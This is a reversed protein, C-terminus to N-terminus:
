QIVDQPLQNEYGTNKDFICTIISNRDTIYKEHGTRGYRCKFKLRAELRPKLLSGRMDIRDQRYIQIHYPPVVGNLILRADQNNRSDVSSSVDDVVYSVGFAATNCLGINIQAYEIGSIEGTNADRAYEFAIKPISVTLKNAPTRKLRLEDFKLIGVWIAAFGLSIGAFALSAAAFLYPLPVEARDFYHSILTMAVVLVALGASLIYKLGEFLTNAIGEKFLSKWFSGDLM